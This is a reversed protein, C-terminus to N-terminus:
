DAFRDFGTHTKHYTANFPDLRKIIEAVANGFVTLNTIRVRELFRGGFPAFTVDVFVRAAQSYREFIYLKDGDERFAGKILVM